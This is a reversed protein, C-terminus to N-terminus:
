SPFTPSSVISKRQNRFDHTIKERVVAPSVIEWCFSSRREEDEIQSGDGDDDAPQAVARHQPRVFRIGADDLRRLIDSVVDARDQRDTQEYRVFEDDLIYRYRLYGPKTRNQYIAGRGLEVDMPGPVVVTPNTETKAQTSNLAKAKTDDAMQSTIKHNSNTSQSQVQSQDGPHRARSQHQEIEHKEIAELFGLHFDTELYYRRKYMIKNSDDSDAKFSPEQAFDDELLVVDDIGRRNEEETLSTGDPDLQCIPIAKRPIGFTPLIMLAQDHSSVFHPRYRCALYISMHQTIRDLVSDFKAHSYVMHRARCRLPISHFLRSIEQVAEDTNETFCDGLGNTGAAYTVHIYGNKQVDVDKTLTQYMYMYIRMMTPLPVDRQLQPFSITVVRGASDKDSLVQTYGNNWIKRDDATLDSLTIERGLCREGFYEYKMGFHDEM